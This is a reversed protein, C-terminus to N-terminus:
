EPPDFALVQVRTDAGFGEATTEITALQGLALSCAHGYKARVRESAIQLAARSRTVFDPLAYHAGPQLHERIVLSPSYCRMERGDPWRISFHMEPM